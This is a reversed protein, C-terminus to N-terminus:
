PKKRTLSKVTDPHNSKMLEYVALLEDSTLGPSKILRKTDEETMDTVLGLCVVGLGSLAVIAIISSGCDSCTVYVITSDQEEGVVKAGDLDYEAACFPCRTVFNINDDLRM